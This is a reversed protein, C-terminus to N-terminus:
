RALQYGRAPCPLAPCYVLRPQRPTVEGAAGSVRSVASGRVGHLLSVRSGEMTVRGVGEEM